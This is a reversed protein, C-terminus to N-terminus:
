GLWSGLCCCVWCIISHIIGSININKEKENGLPNANYQTIEFRIPTAM